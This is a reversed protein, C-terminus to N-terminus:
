LKFCRHRVAAIQVPTYGQSKAWEEVATEGYLAVYAIVKWCPIPKVTAAALQSPPVFVLVVVLLLYKM